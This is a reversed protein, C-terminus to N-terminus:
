PRREAPVFVRDVTAIPRGLRRVISYGVLSCVGGLCVVLLGAPSQYFSRFFVTTACLFVLLGYPVVACGVAAIRSQTQLTRIKEGLALDGSIQRQLGDLVELVTRTGEGAAMEFTLLVADSVPDALEARVAELAQHQGVRDALRVYRGMPARLPEPGSLSLHVLAEHLTAIGANLSGAVQRIGDPWAEVRANARKRRQASWYLYPVAGIGVAPVLAVVLTSDLAYLAAFAVVGIGVCTAWFQGPTVAAGAQSLWVQRSPRPRRKRPRPVRGPKLPRGALTEWALYVACAACLAALVIM